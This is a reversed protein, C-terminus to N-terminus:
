GFLIHSLCSVFLMILLLNLTISLFLLVHAVSPLGQTPVTSRSIRINVTLLLESKWSCYTCGSFMSCAVHYILLELNLKPMCVECNLAHNYHYLCMPLIMFCKLMYIYKNPLDGFDLERRIKCFRELSSPKTIYWSNETDVFELNIDRKQVHDKLLLDLILTKQGYTNSQIRPYIPLAQILVIYPFKKLSKTCLWRTNTQYVTTTLLLEPQSM